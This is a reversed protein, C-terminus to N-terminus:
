LVEEKALRRGIVERRGDRGPPSVLGEEEMQEIMRAARPYGVRLRRQILSASAQGTSLILERAQEYVEDREVDDEQAVARELDIDEYYAPGAQEKIWEVVRLVDEDSVYAGHLRTIRGTGPAMYLMDGLGLLAEAGNADLITRSDIKSSVQYAIRAPFNAKILGTVVDVSPRQTALILHIGSARAMQALRAIKEEVDKPAVMMLDAFEDIVVVIYPLPEVPEQEISEPTQGEDGTDLGDDQGRGARSTSHNAPAVKAGKLGQGIKLNFAHINRVGYEALLRYRREMEQVVWTLGRAAAKPNTIVPRLLHPIGDYVQLELVKPDILLLKVEDPHASFLISLLMSNLGVSKGAGTAGAVLLHPMTKLDAVMSRGFIDKGFALALTSGSRIFAESTLIDRLSVTEREPNPVEVGVTSKGPLPAVIRISTAKLAMALDHALTVIRAVKIGPNPEFEYMTIVPGPHIETVKGGIGFSQLANSLVRSQSELMQDTQHTDTVPPADLLELPSPPYYGQAVKRTSRSMRKQAIAEEPLLDVDEEAIEEGSFAEPEYDDDRDQSYSLAGGRLALTRNIKVPKNAKIRPTTEFEPLRIASLAKGWSKLLPWLGAAGHVASVLSLPKVLLVSVLLLSLLLIVSGTEAFLQTLLIAIEKGAVGGVGQGVASASNTPDVSGTLVIDILASLCFIGLLSGSISRFKTLWTEDQFARIGELVISLSVAYSAWGVLWILGLAMTAGTLGILNQVPVAGEGVNESGIMKGLYPDTPSFSWLSLGVLVGLTILLIGSLENKLQFSSTKTKRLSRSTVRPFISM